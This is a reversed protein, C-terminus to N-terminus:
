SYWERRQSVVEWGGGVRMRTLHLVGAPFLLARTPSSSFAPRSLAEGEEERAACVFGSLASEEDEAGKGGEDDDGGEGDDEEDALFFFFVRAAPAPPPPSSSSSSTTSLSGLSFSSVARSFPSTLVSCTRAGGGCSATRPKTM